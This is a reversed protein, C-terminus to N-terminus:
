LGDPLIITIESPNKSKSGLNKTAIGVSKWLGGFEFEGFKSREKVM